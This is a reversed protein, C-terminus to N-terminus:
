ASAGKAAAQKAPKEEGGPVPPASSAQRVIEILRWRKDKSIPRTEMITVLDGPKAQNQEDHAKFSTSRNIVRGYTSHQAHRVVKVVITKQMKNSIVVGTRVKRGNRDEADQAAVAKENRPERAEAATKKSNVAKKATIGEKPSMSEKPSM